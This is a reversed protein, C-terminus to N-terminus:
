SLTPINTLRFNYRPNAVIINGAWLYQGSRDDSNYIEKFGTFGFQYRKLTSSYFALNEAKTNMGYMSGAPAYQDVVVQAGLFNFSRFGSKAVDSSEENFRQQPQLKNFFWNWSNQDSVLLDVHERGFWASGMAIEVAKLTFGTSLSAV